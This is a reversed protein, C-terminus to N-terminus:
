YKDTFINCIDVTKEDHGNNTKIRTMNLYGEDSQLCKSIAKTPKTDFVNQERWNTNVYRIDYCVSDLVNTPINHYNLLKNTLSVCKLLGGGVIDVQTATTLSNVLKKLGETLYMRYYGKIGASPLEIFDSKPLIGLELMRDFLYESYMKYIPEDTLHKLLFSPVEDEKVSRMYTLTTEVDASRINRLFGKIESTDPEVLMLVKDYEKAHNNLFSNLKKIYNWTFWHGMSRQVDVIVLSKM